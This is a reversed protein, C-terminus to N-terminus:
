ISIFSTRSGSERKKEKFLFSAFKSSSKSHVSKSRKTSNVREYYSEITFREHTTFNACSNKFVEIRNTIVSADGLRADAGAGVGVPMCFVM